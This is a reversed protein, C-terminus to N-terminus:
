AAESALEAMRQQILESHNTAVSAHFHLWSHVAELELATLDKSKIRVVEGNRIVPYSDVEMLAMRGVNHGGPIIPSLLADIAESEKTLAQLAEEAGESDTDIHCNNWEDVVRMAARVVPVLTAAPVAALDLAMLPGDGSIATLITSKTTPM